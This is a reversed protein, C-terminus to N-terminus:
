FRYSLGITILEGKHTSSAALFDFGEGSYMSVYDGFVSLTNGITYSVGGGWQLATESRDVDGQPINTLKVQGYGVLGYLSLNGIPYLPKFYIGINSFDTPYNTVDANATTGGSYKVDTAQSTYRGEIAVYNGYQYGVQIMKGITSFKEKNAENELSMSNVGIGVYFFGDAFDVELSDLIAKEKKVVDGEAYVLTSMVLASALLVKKM